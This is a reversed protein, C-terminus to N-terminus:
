TPILEFCVVHVVKERHIYIGAYIYMYERETLRSFLSSPGSM